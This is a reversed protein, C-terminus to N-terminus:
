SGARIVVRAGDVELGDVLEPLLARRREVRDIPLGDIAVTLSGGDVSLTILLDAPAREGLLMETALAVEDVQEVALGARAALGLVLPVAVPASPSGAPIQVRVDGQNV